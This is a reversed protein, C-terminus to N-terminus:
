DEVISFGLSRLRRVVADFPGKMVRRDGTENPYSVSLTPERTITVMTGTTRLDFGVDLPHLRWQIDWPSEVVDFPVDMLEKGTILDTLYGRSLPSTLAPEGHRKRWVELAEFHEARARAAVEIPLGYRRALHQTEHDM